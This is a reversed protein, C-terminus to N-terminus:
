IESFFSVKLSRRNPKQNFNFQKAQFNQNQIEKQTGRTKRKEKEAELSQQIRKTGVGCRKKKIEKEKNRKRTVPSIGKGNSCRSKSLKAVLVKFDTDETNCLQFRQIKYSKTPGKSTKNLM